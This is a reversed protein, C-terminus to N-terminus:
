FNIAQNHNDVNSVDGFADKNASFFAATYTRIVDVRLNTLPNLVGYDALEITTTNIAVGSSMLSRLCNHLQDRGPKYHGSRNDLHRLVGAQIWIEGACIVDNGANFSSHNTFSQTALPTGEGQGYFLNGYLDMAYAHRPNQPSNIAVDGWDVLTGGPGLIAIFQYRGNPGNKKHYNIGQGFQNTGRVSQWITNWDQQTLEEFSKNSIKHLQSGPVINVLGTALDMHRNSVATGPVTSQKGSKEFITREFKYHADLAKGPVPHVRGVFNNKNTEFHIMARNQNTIVGSAIMLRKMESLVANDLDAIQFRRNTFQQNVINSHGFGFTGKNYVSKDKKDKLWSKCATHLVILAALQNTRTPVGIMLTEYLEFARDIKVIEPGRKGIGKGQKNTATKFASLTKALM